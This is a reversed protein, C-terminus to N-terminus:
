TAVRWRTSFGAAATAVALLVYTSPEPVAIVGEIWTSNAPVSSSYSSAPQNQITPSDYSWPGNISASAYLGGMDYIAAYIGTGSSTTNFISQVAYNIGALRWEGSEQMFVPGGSDNLSLIGQDNGGSVDFDYALQIGALGGDALADLTNTGWSRAGTNAGWTWGKVETGSPFNNGIVTTDTRSLGRGFITMAQNNTFSGSYLPVIKDTPFTGSIQYIALDSAPDVFRATTTYSTSDLFTIAQGTLNGLHKATLFFQPAIPTGMFANISGSEVARWPKSRESGLHQWGLIRHHDSGERSRCRPDHCARGADALGSTRGARCIEPATLWRPADHIGDHFTVSGYLHLIEQFIGRDIRM